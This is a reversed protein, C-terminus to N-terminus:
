GAVALVAVRLGRHRVRSDDSRGLPRELLRIGGPVARLRILRPRRGHPRRKGGRLESITIGSSRSARSRRSSRRQASSAGGGWATLTRVSSARCAIGASRARGAQSNDAIAAQPPTERRRHWPPRCQARGCKVSGVVSPAWGSRAWGSRAWPWGSRIPASRGDSRASGARRARGAGGPAATGTPPGTGAPKVTCSRVNTLSLSPQARPM